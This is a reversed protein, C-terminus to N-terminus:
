KRKLHRHKSIDHQHNQSSAATCHDVAVDQSVFLRTPRCCHKGVSHPLFQVMKNKTIVKDFCKVDFYNNECIYGVGIFKSCFSMLIRSREQLMDKCYKEFPLM